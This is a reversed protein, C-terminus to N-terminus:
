LFNVTNVPQRSIGGVAVHEVPGAHGFEHQGLAIVNSHRAAEAHEYPAEDFGATRVTSARPSDHLPQQFYDGGPHAHSPPRVHIASPERMSDGRYLSYPNEEHVATVPVRYNDEDDEEYQIPPESPVSHM